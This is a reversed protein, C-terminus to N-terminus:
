PREKVTCSSLRPNVIYKGVIIEKECSATKRDRAKLVFEFSYQYSIFRLFFVSGDESPNETLFM